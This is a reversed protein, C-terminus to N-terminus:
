LIKAQTLTGSYSNELGSVFVIEEEASGDWFLGSSEV